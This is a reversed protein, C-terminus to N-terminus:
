GKYYKILPNIRKISYIEHNVINEKCDPCIIDKSLAENKIYLTGGIKNVIINIKKRNKDFENAQESFTLEKKIQNGNYLYFLNDKEETKEIKELFKDIIDKMKDNINCQISTDVGEYNFIAEVM